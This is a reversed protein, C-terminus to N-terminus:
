QKNLKYQKNPKNPKNPKLPIRVHKGTKIRVYTDTRILCALCAIIPKNRTQSTEMAIGAHM